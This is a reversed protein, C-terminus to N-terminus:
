GTMRLYLFYPKVLYGELSMALRSKRRPRFMELCKLTQAPTNGVCLDAILRGALFGLPLVHGGYGVSYLLNRVEPDEGIMPLRHTNFGMRGSWSYGVPASALQPFLASLKERLSRLISEDVAESDGEASSGVSDGGDILVRNDKTVRLFNYLAGTDWVMKTQDLRAADLLDPELPRTVITHVTIPHVLKRGLVKNTFCETAIILKRGFVSGRGTRVLFGGERPEIKTVETGEFIRQSDAGSRRKGLTSALGRVLKVPNVVALNDYRLVGYSSLPSNLLEKAESGEFLTAKPLGSGEIAEYETELRRLHGRSKALYLGSSESLECDFPGSRALRKIEQIADMTYRWLDSAFEVGFREEAECFDLETGPALGGACMGTSGTGISGRELLVFDAKYGALHRAVSVGTMGGGVILVDTELDEALRDSQSYPEDLWFPQAKTGSIKRATTL